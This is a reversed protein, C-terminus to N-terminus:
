NSALQLFQADMHSLWLFASNQITILLYNKSQQLLHLTVVLSM